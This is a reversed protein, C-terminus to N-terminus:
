ELFHGIAIVSVGYGMLGASVAVVGRRWGPSRQTVDALVIFLPILQMAYRPMGAWYTLSAPLLWAITSFAALSAPIRPTSWMYAVAALSGLGFILDLIELIAFGSPQTGFALHWTNALATWPWTVTRGGYGASSQVHSYALWDGTQAHAYLVFGVVPLLTAGILVLGPAPRWRRRRLYEFLLAPILALGTIRVAIAVAACLCARGNDGRRMYYLSAAAAALFTSDGYVMSLDIADPWLALLWAAFRAAERDLEAEVLRVLYYLAILEAVASVFIGSVTTSMGLHFFVTVLMPYGPFFGWLHGPHGPTVDLPGPPYGHAAITTYNQGDWYAFPALLEGWTPHGVSTSQAFVALTLVAVTVVKGVAWPVLALRLAAHDFQGKVWEGAALV